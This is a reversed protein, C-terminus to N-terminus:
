VLNRLAYMRKWPVEPYKIQIMEPIKNAAEGIITFHMLVSYLTKRDKNFNDFDMESTYELIENLSFQIDELYMLFNRGQNKM